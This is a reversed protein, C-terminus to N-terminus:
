PGGSGLRLLLAVGSITPAWGNRHWSRRAPAGAWGSHHACTATTTWRDRMERHGRVKGATSRPVGDPPVVNESLVVANQRPVMEGSDSRFARGTQNRGTGDRVAWRHLTMVVYHCRTPTAALQHDLERGPAPQGLGMAVAVAAWAALPAISPALMM